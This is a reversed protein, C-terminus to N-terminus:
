AIDLPMVSAREAAPRADRMQAVSRGCVPHVWDPAVDALPVLVFSRDQLRPHPLILQDPASQAQKEPSLERWAAYTASDPCIKEGVAILDLDLTRQGWRVTRARAAEAEIDHLITLIDAPTKDTAVRIAANVFNPGSGTPFAPTEYFHSCVAISDLRESVELVARRATETVDGWPSNMNSGMAVLAFDGNRSKLTAQPM